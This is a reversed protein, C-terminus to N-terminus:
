TLIYRYIYIHKGNKACTVDKALIALITLLLLINQPKM